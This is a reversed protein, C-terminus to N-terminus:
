RRRLSDLLGGILGRRQPARAPFPGSPVGADGMPGIADTAGPAAGPATAPVTPDPLALVPGSAGSPSPLEGLDLRTERAPKESANDPNGSPVTAGLEGPPSPRPAPQDGPPPNDRPPAGPANLDFPSRRNGPLAPIEAPNPRTADPLPQRDMEPTPEGLNDPKSRNELNEPRLRGYEVAANPAEPSPCGWNPPFRRWCTPHYGFYEHRYLRYVPDEEPCPVRERRIPALPFLGTQQAQVFAPAAVVLALGLASPSWFRRWSNTLM